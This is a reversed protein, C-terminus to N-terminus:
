LSKVFSEKREEFRRKQEELRSLERDHTQRTEHRFYLWVIVGALFGIPPRAVVSGLIFAVLGFILADQNRNRVVEPMLSLMKDTLSLANGIGNHEKTNTKMSAILGTLEQLKIDQRTRLFMYTGLGSLLSGVAVVEFIPMLKAREEVFYSPSYQSLIYGAIIASSAVLVLVAALFAQALRVHRERKAIYNVWKESIGVISAAATLIEEKSEDWGEGM